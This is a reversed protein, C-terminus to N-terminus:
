MNEDASPGYSGPIPHGLLRLYVGLQARHHIVHSIVWTCWVEYKSDSIFPTGHYVFQWNEDWKSPDFKALEVKVESTDRDLHEILGATSTPVFPEYKEGGKMEIKDMTLTSKGWEGATEAIHGALKGLSMSKPHPKYEFDVGSPIAEFIKRTKAIERDYEAILAKQLDM